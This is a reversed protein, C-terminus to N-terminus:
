GRESKRSASAEGVIVSNRSASAEGVPTPKQSTSAEGVSAPARYWKPYYRRVNETDTALAHCHDLQFPKEDGDDERVLGAFTQIAATPLYALMETIHTCGHIGGMTAHLHKRFGVVLNAGVLKGYAPGIVDCVGPYPMDDTTAEIARITFNKDVTVRVWMNHVPMGADRFGTLLQYRHDKVDVIHADIDFLGDDRLFGEFTVTRQHLRERPVIPTSLPM